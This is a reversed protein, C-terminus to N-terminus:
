LLWGEVLDDGGGALELLWWSCWGNSEVMGLWRLRELGPFHELAVRQWM